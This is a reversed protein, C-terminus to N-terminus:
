RSFIFFYKGLTGPLELSPPVRFFFTTDDIRQFFLFIICLTGSLTGTGSKWSDGTASGSIFTYDTRLYFSFHYM